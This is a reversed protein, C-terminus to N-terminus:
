VHARGIQSDLNVSEAITDEICALGILRGERKWQVAAVPRDPAQLLARMMRGDLFVSPQEAATLFADWTSWDVAEIADPGWHWTAETGDALFTAKHGSPKQKLKTM